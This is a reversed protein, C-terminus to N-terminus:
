AISRARLWVLAGILVVMGITIASFDLLTYLLRRGLLDYLSLGIVAVAAITLLRLARPLRDYDNAVYVLAVTSLLLVYDWGQPSVLPTLALLLGAELGDPMAVDRRRLFVFAAAALMAIASVAALATAASGIGLRKAWLSALSVNDSHLLLSETTASVTRWWDRHLDVTADVGYALAPLALAFALGVTVAAVSRWKRRAAIWPVLILAYPKLVVALAVLLGAVAERGRHFALLAATAVLAVLINIQGLVLDEAYYKGLGVLLITILLWRPQRRDPLLAVSLPLLAVLAVASVAFWAARATALPLAGLPIALAAFGPFYKFQYDADSPRYLPEAAAARVGARWYVEFDPMRSSARAAFLWIGLAVLTAGIVM